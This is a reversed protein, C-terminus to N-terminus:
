NNTRSIFLDIYPRKNQNQLDQKSPYLLKTYSLKNNKTMEDEQLFRRIRINCNLREEFMKILKDDPTMGKNNNEIYNCITDNEIIGDMKKNFFIRAEKYYKSSIPINKATRFLDRAKEYLSKKKSDNSTKEKHLYLYGLYLAYVFCLNDTNNVTSYTRGRGKNNRKIYNLKLSVGDLRISEKSTLIRQVANTISQPTVEKLEYSSNTINYSFIEDEEGPEYRSISWQIKDNEALDTKKQFEDLIKQFLDFLLTTPSGIDEPTLLKFIQMADLINKNTLVYNKKSENNMMVTM